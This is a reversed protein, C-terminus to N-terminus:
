RQIVPKATPKASSISRSIATALRSSLPTPIQPILRGTIHPNAITLKTQHTPIPWAPVRIEAM